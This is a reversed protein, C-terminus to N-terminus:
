FADSMHQNKNTIATTHFCCYSSACHMASTAAAASTTIARDTINYQATYCQHTDVSGGTHTLSPLQSILRWGQDQALRLLGKTSSNKFWSLTWKSGSCTLASAQTRSQVGRRQWKLSGVTAWSRKIYLECLCFSELGVCPPIESPGGRGQGVEGGETLPLQLPLFCMQSHGEICNSLHWLWMRKLTEPCSGWKSIVPNKKGPSNKPKMQTRCHNAEPCCSYFFTACPATLGEDYYKWRWSLECPTVLGVTWLDCNPRDPWTCCLSLISSHQFAPPLWTDWHPDTTM